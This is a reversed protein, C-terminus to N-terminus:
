RVVTYPYKTRNRYGVIKRDQDVVPQATKADNLVNILFDPVDVEEGTKIVYFKGNHGIPLGTPPIDDHDELIIRTTTVGKAQLAAKVTPDLPGTYQRPVAVHEPTAVAAAVTNESMQSPGEDIDAAAAALEALLENRRAEAKDEGQIKEPEPLLSCTVTYWGGGLPTLTVGQITDTM